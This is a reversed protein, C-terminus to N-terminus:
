APITPAPPVDRQRPEQEDDDGCEGNKNPTRRSQLEAVFDKNTDTWVRTTSVTTRILRTSTSTSNSAVFAEMYKGMNFKLATKGNGFLDYAVGMRATVDDWHIGQTSRSPYM